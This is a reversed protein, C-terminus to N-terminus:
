PPGRRARRPRPVARRAVAAPAHTRRHDRRQDGPVRPAERGPLLWKGVGAGDFTTAMAVFRQEHLEQEDLVGKDPAYAHKVYHVTARLDKPSVARAKAVLHCEVQTLAGDTLVPRLWAIQQAHDYSVDGDVLARSTLPLVDALNRGLRVDRYAQSPSLHLEARLWSQTNVHEVPQGGRRDLVEVRTLYAAELRNIQRRIEATEGQLQANSAERVDVAHLEDVASALNSM